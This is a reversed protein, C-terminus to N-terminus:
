EAAETTKWVPAPEPMPTGNSRKDIYERLAARVQEAVSTRETWKREELWQADEEPIDVGIYRTNTGRVVTM